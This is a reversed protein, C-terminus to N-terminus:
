PTPVGNDFLSTLDLVDSRTRSQDVEAQWSAFTRDGQRKLCTPINNAAMGVPAPGDVALLDSAAQDHYGAAHLADVTPFVDCVRDEDEDLARDQTGGYSYVWKFNAPPNPEVMRRFRDVEKTYSYFRAQPHAAMVTLWAQLYEDSYFDGADHVRVIVPGRKRGIEAIMQVTWGALDDHVYALNRGHRERVNSYRYTGYRAYCARACVGASPCTKVTSGDPLRGALAPLTWSWIHDRKLNENNQTLLNKPRVTLREAAADM